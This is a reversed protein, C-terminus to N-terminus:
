VILVNLNAYFAHFILTFAFFFKILEESL